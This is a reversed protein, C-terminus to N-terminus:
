LQGVDLYKIMVTYQDSRVSLDVSVNELHYQPESRINACATVVDRSQLWSSGNYYLWPRDSDACYARSEMSLGSTTNGAHFETNLWEQLEGSYYLLYGGGDQRCLM